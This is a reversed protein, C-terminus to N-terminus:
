PSKQHPINGKERMVQGFIATGFMVGEFVKPPIALLVAILRTPQLRSASRTRLRVM